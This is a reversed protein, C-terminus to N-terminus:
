YEMVLPNECNECLYNITTKQANDHRRAIRWQTQQCQNCKDNPLDLHPRNDDGGFQKISEQYLYEIDEDIIGRQHLAQRTSQLYTINSGNRGWAGAIYKYTEQLSLQGQFQHHSQDLAFSLAPMSFNRELMTTRAMVIIPRYALGVMEREWLYQAIDKAKAPTITFLVGQCHGALDLGLVLGPHEPTGRYHTSLLGFRRHYGHITALHQDIFEFGPQWILSGYGFVAFKPLASVLQWYHEQAQQTAIDNMGFDNM